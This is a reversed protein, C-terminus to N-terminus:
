GDQDKLPTLTGVIRKQKGKAGEPRHLTALYTGERRPADKPLYGIRQIRDGAQNLEYAALRRETRSYSDEYDELLVHIRTTRPQDYEVVREGLNNDHQAGLIVVERMPRARPSKLQDLMEPRFAHFAASATAGPRETEHAAHWVAQAMVRREQPDTYTASWGELEQIASVLAKEDDTQMARAITRNYARVRERAETYQESTFDTPLMDKFHQPPQPAREWARFQRTTHNWLHSVADKSRSLRTERTFIDPDKHVDLWVLDRGVKKRVENVYDMNAATDYKFKDVEAQLEEALRSITRERQERPYRDAANVRSITYVIQGLSSDMNKLAQRAAQERNYRHALGYLDSERRAIWDHSDFGHSEAIEVAEDLSRGRDGAVESLANALENKQEPALSQWDLHHGLEVLFQDRHGGQHIAASALWKCNGATVDEPREPAVHTALRRKVKPTTGMSGWGERRVQDVLPAMDSWDRTPHAIEDLPKHPTVPMIQFNDGDFDGGVRKATDHSMFVVGEHKRAYLFFSLFRGEDAESGAQFGLKQLEKWSTVNQWIQVDHRTRIPYRTALVEGAPLDPCVIIGEPLWDVAGRFSDPLGMFSPVKVGGGVALDHWAQRLRRKLGSQVYPHDILEGSADAALVEELVAPVRTDEAELEGRETEYVEAQREEREIKLFQRAGESSKMAELLLPIQTDARPFICQEVLDPDFWQLIQYSLKTRREQSWAVFGLHIDLTHEGFAPVNGKFSSDPLILDYDPDRWDMQKLTGKGVAITDEDLRIGLRFQGAQSGDKGFLEALRTSMKGACDGTGMEGEPVVLIRVGEILQPPQQCPSALLGGYAMIKEFTGAVQRGVQGDTYLFRGEKRAGTAVDLALVAQGEVGDQSGLDRALDELVSQWYAEIQEPTARLPPAPVQGLAVQLDPFMVQLLSNDLNVPTELDEGTAVDYVQLARRDKKHRDM